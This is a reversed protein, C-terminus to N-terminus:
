DEEEEDHQPAGFRVKTGDALGVESVEYGGLDGGERGLMQLVAPGAENLVVQLAKRAAEEDIEDFMKQLLQEVTESPDGQTTYGIKFEIKGIEDIQIAYVLKFSTDDEEDQETTILLQWGDILFLKWAEKGPTLGYTNLPQNM